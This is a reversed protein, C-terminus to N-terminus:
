ECGRLRGEESVRSVPVSPSGEGGKVSDCPRDTVSKWNAPTEFVEVSYLRPTRIHVPVPMPAANDVQRWDGWQHSVELNVCRRSWVSWDPVPVQDPDTRGSFSPVSQLSPFRVSM